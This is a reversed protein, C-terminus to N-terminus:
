RRRLWGGPWYTVPEEIAGEQFLRPPHELVFEPHVAAFEAAAATAHDWSWDPSGGPVDHLDSM